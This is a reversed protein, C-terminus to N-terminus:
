NELSACKNARKELQINREEVYNRYPRGSCYDEIDRAIEPYLQIAGLDSVPIWKVGIQNPDPNHPLRPVSGELLKCAFTIGIMHVEGYINGNKLPEYEYVFAVSGVEVDVGAEEKAERKLAEVLTEGPELGGGPLNYHVGDDHENKYEVLLVSGGAVILASARIRINTNM